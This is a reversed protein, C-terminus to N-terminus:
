RKKRIRHKELRKKTAASTELNLKVTKGSLPDRFKGRIRVM